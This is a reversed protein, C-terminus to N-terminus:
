ASANRRRGWYVMNWALRRVGPVRLLYRDLDRLPVWWRALREPDDQLIHKWYRVRGPPLRDVLFYKLFLALSLGWFERHGVDGFRARMQELEGFGVPQEDASRVDHALLRYVWIIPNYTLPDIFICRGGPAIARAVDDLCQGIDSVHHIVNAGYIVDYASTGFELVNNEVLLTRISVGHREALAKATALMAPSVDCATVSAGKLAFYVSAEGLGAGVDLLRLGRLDGLRDTVFRNEVATPHEFAARVDIHELPTTQAWADHFDRERIRRDGDTM